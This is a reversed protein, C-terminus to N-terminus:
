PRRETLYNIQRGIEAAAEVLEGLRKELALTAHVQAAALQNRAAGSGRKAERDLRIAEARHDVVEVQKNNPM